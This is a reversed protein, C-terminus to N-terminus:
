VGDFFTAIQMQLQRARHAASHAVSHPVNIDVTIVIVITRDRQAHTSWKDANESYQMSNLQYIFLFKWANVAFM